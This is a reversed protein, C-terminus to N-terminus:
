VHLTGSAVAGGLASSARRRKVTSPRATSIGTRAPRERSTSKSRPLPRTSAAVAPSAGAIAASQARGRESGVTRGEADTRGSSFFRLFRENKKRAKSDTNPASEVTAFTM